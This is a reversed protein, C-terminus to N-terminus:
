RAPRRARRRLLGLGCLSALLLWPSVRAEPAVSCGAAARNGVPANLEQVFFSAQVTDDGYPDQDDAATGAGGNGDVAAVYITLPGTGAKPATWWLDWTRPDNRLVLKPQNPDDSRARNAFVADGDPAVFAEDTTPNPDPCKGAQPAAACFVGPGALPVGAADIELAFGNNNCPVFSFSDGQSPADTCTATGFRTGAVEDLLEVQLRYTAGPKYGDTFLSPDDAGLRMKVLGPGGTHCSRCTQSAFRPAGTFYVGEGSAGYTAAHPIVAVFQAPEAFGYALAPVAVLAVILSSRM